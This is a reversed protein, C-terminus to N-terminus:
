KHVTSHGPNQKEQESDTGDVEGGGVFIGIDIVPAESARKVLEERSLKTLDEKM